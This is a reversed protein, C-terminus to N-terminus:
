IVSNSIAENISLIHLLKRLNFLDFIEILFNPYFQMYGTSYEYKVTKSVIIGNVIVFYLIYLVNKEFFM